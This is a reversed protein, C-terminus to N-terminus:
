GKILDNSLNLEFARLNWDSMLEDGSMIPTYQMVEFDPISEHNDILAVIQNQLYPVYLSKEPKRRNTESFM